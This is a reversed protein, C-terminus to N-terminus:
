GTDTCKIIWDCGTLVCKRMWNYGTLMCQKRCPRRHLLRSAALPAGLMGDADWGLGECSALGAALMAAAAFAVFSAWGAAALGVAGASVAASAEGEM